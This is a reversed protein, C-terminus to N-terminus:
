KKVEIQAPAEKPVIVGLELLLQGVEQRILAQLTPLETLEIAM